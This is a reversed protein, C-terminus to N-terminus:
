GGIGACTGVACMVAAIAAALAIMFIGVKLMERQNRTM